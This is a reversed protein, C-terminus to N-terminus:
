RWVWQCQNYYCDWHYSPQYYSGSPYYPQYTPTNYYPYALTGGLIGGVIAGGVFPAVWNNSRGGNNYEHGYGGYGHHYHQAMVPNIILLPITALAAPSYNKM